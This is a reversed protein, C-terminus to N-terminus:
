RKDIVEFDLEDAMGYPVMQKEDVLGLELGAEYFSTVSFESITDATHVVTIDGCIQRCAAKTVEQLLAFNRFYAKLPAKGLEQRRQNKRELYSDITRTLEEITGARNDELFQAMESYRAEWIVDARDANPAHEAFIDPDLCVLGRPVGLLKAVRPTIASIGSDNDNLPDGQIVVLKPKQPPSPSSSLSPNPPDDDKWHNSLQRHIQQAVLSPDRPDYYGMGEIVVPHYRSLTSLLVNNVRM